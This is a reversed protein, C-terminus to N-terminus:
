PIVKQRIIPRLLPILGSAVVLILLLISLNSDVLIGHTDGIQLSRFYNSEVIPGLVLGLIMPVRSMNIKIMLFGLFGFIVTVYMDYINNNIAFAGFFAIGIIFPGLINVDMRTIKMFQKAGLIGIVSTIFNSILLSVIVITVIDLRDRFLFPGPQIGHLIFAGFLVAMAASGPVGLGLTPIFAGGDKADNSAESAIVGRVDGTGFKEPNKSTQAAQFYAIFNAAAGGVGPITGIITGVLASRLFILRHVYVDKMGQKVGKGIEIDSDERAIKEGKTVLRIMEAVAFLGILAPILQFGDHMWTMDYTWRLNSSMSNLGHMAFLLGFGGSILGSIVSGKVVVSIVTLGWVSLWFVEPPGFLLSIERLLPISIALVLIGFTAGAASAVAAAGLARGGEGNRTMPYGDLLTAANPAGGPTNILIASISGGFNTGGQVATLLMFAVLPDMGFTIPILLALAVIGGLGPLAGMLLGLLTGLLILFFNFPDIVTTIAIEFAERTGM